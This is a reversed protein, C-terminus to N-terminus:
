PDAPEVEPKMACPDRRYAKRLNIGVGGGYERLSERANRVEPIDRLYFVLLNWIGFDIRAPEGALVEADCPSSFSEL